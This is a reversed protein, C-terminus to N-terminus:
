PKYFTIAGIKAVPHFHLEGVFYEADQPCGFYKCGGTIDRNASEQWARAAAAQIKQPAHQARINNVGYVSQLSGRNRIVAAIGLMARYPQNAAEGLIARVADAQRVESPRANGARAKFSLALLVILLIRKM